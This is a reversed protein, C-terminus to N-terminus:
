KLFQASVWGGHTGFYINAWGERIFGIHVREGHELQGIINKPNTSDAANRVNLTTATVTKYIEEATEPTAVPALNIYSVDLDVKGAVGPFSEKDINNQWLDCKLDPASLGPRSYWFKYTSLEAPYINSNTGIKIAISDLWIGLRKLQM